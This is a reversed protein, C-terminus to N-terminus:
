VTMADAAMENDRVANLAKGLTSRVFNNIIWVCVVTWMFVTPLNAWDPQSSLGRPGGLFELNEVLSKVIFMFALSIIALYDGRTRFSPIAVFSSRLFRCIDQ